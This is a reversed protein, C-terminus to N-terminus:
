KEVRPSFQQRCGPKLTINLLGENDISLNMQGGLASQDHRPLPLNVKEVTNGQRLIEVVALITPTKLSVDCSGLVQSKQFQIQNPNNYELMRADQATGCQALNTVKKIAATAYAHSNSSGGSVALVFGDYNPTWQESHGGQGGPSTPPDWVINLGGHFGARDTDVTWGAPTLAQATIKYSDHDIYFWKQDTVPRDWYAGDTASLTVRAAYRPLAGCLILPFSPWVTKSLLGKYFGLSLTLFKPTAGPPILKDPFSLTLLGMSASEVALRTGDVDSPGDHVFAQPQRGDKFLGSGTIFLRTPGTASAILTLGGAGVNVLPETPIPLSAFSNALANQFGVINQALADNLQDLSVKLSNSVNVSLNDLERIAEMRQIRAKQDLDQVREQIVQNLNFIASQIIGNLQDLRQELAANGKNIASELLANAAISLPNFKNLTATAAGIVDSPKVDAAPSAATSLVMLLIYTVSRRLLGIKGSRM